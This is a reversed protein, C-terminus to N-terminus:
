GTGGSPSYCAYVHGDNGVVFVFISKAADPPVTLSIPRFNSVISVPTSPPQGLNLWQWTSGDGFNTCNGDNGIAFADIRQVSGDFYALSSADGTVLTAGAPSGRDAWQWTSGIDESYNVYLHGDSGIVHSYVDQEFTSKVAQCSVAEPGGAIGAGSPLAGQDRWNWTKGDDLSANVWLHGDNAIVFAYFQNIGSGDPALNGSFFSTAAAFSKVGPSPSGLSEWNWTTGGDTSSNLSLTGDGKGIFAFYRQTVASTKLNVYPVALVQAM